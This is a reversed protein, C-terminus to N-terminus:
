RKRLIMHNYGDGEAEDVTDFGAAEVWARVQEMTPYYHYAGNHVWEGEVVPLGANVAEQFVTPLEDEPIEVTLYLLGYPKLARHFNHLVRPWDEPFVNEIADMCTIGDFTDRFSLEQLGLKEVPVEPFKAKAQRLMGASQDIGLLSRGNQLMLPWYKGTGCATDLLHAHPPLLALFCEIMRQHTPNIYGGWREDYVPAFLTDMREENIRRRERIWATRDM